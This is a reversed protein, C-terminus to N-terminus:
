LNLLDDVAEAMDLVGVVEGDGRANDAVTSSLKSVERRIKERYCIEFWELLTNPGDNPKLERGVWVLLIPRYVAPVKNWYIKKM